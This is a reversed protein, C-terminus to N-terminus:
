NQYCICCQVRSYWFREYTQKCHQNPNNNHIPELMDNKNENNSIQHNKVVEHLKGVNIILNEDDGIVRAEVLKIGRDYLIKALWNINKDATRGNLIEDGIVVIAATPQRETTMIVEYIFCNLLNVHLIYGLEINDDESNM